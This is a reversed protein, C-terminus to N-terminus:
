RHFKARFNRINTYRRVMSLFFGFGALPDDISFVQDVMNRRFITFFPPTTRKKMERDSLLFWLFELFFNRCYVGLKYRSIEPIAEGFALKLHLDAYDIGAAFGIKIGATVRPNIELIKAKNDRPDLIYDVDAAGKWNLSELLRRTTETIEPHEITLNATSTGGKVPFFRPKLIVMCVKMKGEEDVFAEAQYQMGGDPAIFEQIILEGHKERLVPYAKELDTHNDYREVGIAGVGRVPKVMVPFELLTGLKGLSEDNLAFTKPCPLERDMCFQMLKMKDVAQIFTSYGPSTIRTFKSIEEKNKSLIEASADGVSIAVDVKNERLYELLKKEFAPGEKFHSPWLLRKSPYRSFYGETIRTNCVITTKHGARSFSKLFPLAQRGQDLLLINLKKNM